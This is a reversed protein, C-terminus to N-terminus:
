PPCDCEPDALASETAADLAAFVAEAEGALSTRDDTLAPSTEPDPDGVVVRGVMRSGASTSVYDYVGARDFSRVFTEDSEILSSAWEQAGEPIRSPYAAVDHGEDAENHWTVTGGPSVRVLQPAFRPGDSDDIMEVRATPPVTEVATEVRQSPSGPGGGDASAAGETPTRGTGTSATGTSRDGSGAEGEGAVAGADMCGAVGASLLAAGAALASRRTRAEDLPSDPAESM